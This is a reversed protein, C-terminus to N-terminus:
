PMLTDAIYQKVYDWNEKVPNFCANFKESVFKEFDSASFPAMVRDKMFADAWLKYYKASPEFLWREYDPTTHIYKPVDAIIVIYGEVCVLVTYEDGEWDRELLVIAQIKWGVAVAINKNVTVM